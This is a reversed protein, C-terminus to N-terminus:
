ATEYILIQGFLDCPGLYYPDDGQLRVQGTIVVEDCGIESTTIQIGDAAYIDWTGMTSAEPAYSNSITASDVLLGDRYFQVSLNRWSFAFGVNFVSADIVVKSISTMVDESATRTSSSGVTLEMEDTGDVTLGLAVDVWGSDLGDTLNADWEYDGSPTTYGLALETEIGYGQTGSDGVYLAAAADFYPDYDYSDTVVALLRRQELLEACAGQTGKRNRGQINTFGLM